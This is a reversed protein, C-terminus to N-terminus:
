AQFVCKTVASLNASYKTSAGAAATSAGRRLAREAAEVATTASTVSTAAPADGISWNTPTGIKWARGAPVRCGANVPM